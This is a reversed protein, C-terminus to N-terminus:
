EVNEPLSHLSGVAPWGLLWLEVILELLDRGGPTREKRGMQWVDSLLAIM